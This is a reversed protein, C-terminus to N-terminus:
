VIDSKVSMVEFNRLNVVNICLVTLVSTRNRYLIRRIMMFSSCILRHIESAVTINSKRCLMKTVFSM